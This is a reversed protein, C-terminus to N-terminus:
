FINKNQYTSADTILTLKIVIRFAHANLQEFITQVTKQIM